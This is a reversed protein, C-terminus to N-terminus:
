FGFGTSFNVDLSKATFNYMIYMQMVKWAVVTKNHLLGYQFMSIEDLRYGLLTTAATGSKDSSYGLGQYMFNFKSSFQYTGGYGLRTGIGEDEVEVDSVGGYINETYSIKKWQYLGINLGTQHKRDITETLQKRYFLGGLTGMPENTSIKPIFAGYQTPVVHAYEFGGRTVTSYYPLIYFHQKSIKTGSLYTDDLSNYRPISLHEDSHNDFIIEKGNLSEKAINKYSVYLKISEDSTDTQYFGKPYISQSYMLFDSLFEDRKKKNGDIQYSYAYLFSIHSYYKISECKLVIKDLLSRAEKSKLKKLEDQAQHYTSKIDLDIECETIMSSNLEDMNKYSEIQITAKNKNLILKKDSDRVATQTNRGKFQFKYFDEGEQYSKYHKM